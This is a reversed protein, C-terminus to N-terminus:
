APKRGSHQWQQGNFCIKLITSYQEIEIIALICPDFGIGIAFFDIGCHSLICVCFLIQNKEDAEAPFVLQPPLSLVTSRRM